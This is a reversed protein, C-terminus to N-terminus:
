RRRSVQHLKVRSSERTCLPGTKRPGETLCPLTFADAKPTITFFLFTIWKMTLQTSKGPFKPRSLISLCWLRSELYKALDVNKNGRQSVERLQNKIIKGRRWKRCLGKIPLFMERSLNSKIWKRLSCGFRVDRRKRKLTTLDM